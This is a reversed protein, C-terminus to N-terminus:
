RSRLWLMIPITVLYMTVGYVGSALAYPGFADAAILGGVAIGLTGNQVGAEIAIATGEPKDLKAIKGLGLGVGIMILNLAILIPGLVALNSIFLTWNAALAALVMLIFLVTAIRTLIPEARVAVVPLYHRLVLGLLTPVATIAFMTIALSTVNIPPADAGQFYDASFAVLWPLTLATILSIVATLSISLAVSGGVLRTIINSTVGGPCFALIMVGVALAGPLPLIHLLAFAVIPLIILQAVAGISFAKPTTAVRKFDTLTLGVGLSFMIFALSLPLGVNLLLDM